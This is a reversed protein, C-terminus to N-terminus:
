KNWATYFPSHWTFFDALDPFALFASKSEMAASAM